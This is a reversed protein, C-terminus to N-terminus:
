PRDVGMSIIDEAFYEMLVDISEKESGLRPVRNSTYIMKTVPDKIFVVGGSEDDDVQLRDKVVDIAEQEKESLANMLQRDLLHADQDLPVDIEMNVVRCLARYDLVAESEQEPLLDLLERAQHAKGADQSVKMASLMSNEIKHEESAGEYRSQVVSQLRKRIRQLQENNM